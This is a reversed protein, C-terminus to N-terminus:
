RARLAAVMAQFDEPAEREFSMRNVRGRICSASRERMSCRARRMSRPAPSIASTCASASWRIASNPCTSGSRTSADPKSAASSWRPAPSRRSRSSTRSPDGRRPPSKARRGGSSETRAACATAATSCSIADRGAARDGRRARDRSLRARDHAAPVPGGAHAACARDPRVGHAREHGPRPPPRRRAQWRRRARGHTAVAHARLRRDDGQEGARRRREPDRGAQGRRRSGPRLVRDRGRGAARAAAQARARRGRGRGGGGRADCARRLARREADRTGRRVPAARAVM